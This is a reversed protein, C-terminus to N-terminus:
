RLRLTSTDKFRSMDSIVIHDGPNIGSKVEVYDYNSNGLTVERKELRKGSDDMFFLTYTGPGNYYAGNPIRIADDVVECSIYVDAKLGARLRPNDDRDLRVTFNIMGNKSQPTLNSVTGSIPEKGIKVTAKSGIAIRNAYSESIEADVRFHTPDSIVAVKQGEGVQEGIQNLIFTLIAKRPSTVRADDLTRRIEGLNRRAIDIDLNKVNEGAAAVRRENALQQRMHELELRGTKVSLQAERVRDGTGSGISDLHQENRLEAELRSLTMEKVKVQMELDNLRTDSNVRQQELEHQKMSIQDSMKNVETQTTHLDLLLLPTGAEVSDGAQAYVEVIRSSIPSTIIEEFAPQVSGTGSITVDILGTDATAIILEDKSVSRHSMVSAVALVAGAAVMAIGIRYWKKRKAKNKETKSIERDVITIKKLGEKGYTYQIKSPLLPLNEVFNM